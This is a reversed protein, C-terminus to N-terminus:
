APRTLRWMAFARGLWLGSLLGSAAALAMLFGDASAQGPRVAQFVGISYKLAFTVMILLMPLWSGPLQLRQAAADWRAHAPVLWRAAAVFALASCLLWVAATAPIKQTAPWLTSLGLGLMVLPLIILRPRAVARARSQSFGLALLTALLAWVWLPTHRFIEIM